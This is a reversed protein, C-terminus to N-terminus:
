AHHRRSIDPLRALIDETSLDASALAATAQKTLLARQADQPIVLLMGDLLVSAVASGPRLGVAERPEKPVPLRGKDDLTAFGATTEDGSSTSAM